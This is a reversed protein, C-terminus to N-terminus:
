PCAKAPKPAGAAVWADIIALEAAPRIGRPPMPKREDHMRSGVVEYVKKGPTLIAPKQFDDWTVLAMPAGAIPDSDHCATCSKTMITRVACYDPAVASGGDASVSGDATSGGDAVRVGGDIVQSLTEAGVDDSTESPEAACGIALSALAAAVWLRRSQIKFSANFM